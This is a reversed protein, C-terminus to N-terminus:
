KTLVGSTDAATWDSSTGTYVSLQNPPALFMFEFNNNPCSELGSTNTESFIFINKDIRELTLNGSCPIQPASYTGCVQGVECGALITVSYKWQTKFVAMNHAIGGWQGAISDTTTMIMTDTPAATEITSALRPAPFSHTVFTLVVWGIMGVLLVLTGLIWLFRGWASKKRPLLEPKPPKSVVPSPGIYPHAVPAPALILTKVIDVLARIQEQTPPNIADLWHTRTLYYRIGPEPEVNEIKFPIIVLKSNAALSLERPIHESSNVYASFVLVMVRSQSIARDIAAPWDEGPTIDRPAIWCRVGAGELNACIADAILKDKNSYSIFIDHAM